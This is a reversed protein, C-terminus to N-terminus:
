SSFESLFDIELWQIRSDPASQFGGWRYGGNIVALPAGVWNSNDITDTFAVQGVGLMHLVAEASLTTFGTGNAIVFTNLTPVVSSLSDLNPSWAQVSSGIGLGLHARLRQGSELVLSSSGDSSGIAVTGSPFPGLSTFADTGNALVVGYPLSSAGTGGCSTDLPNAFHVAGSVRLSGQVDLTSQITNSSSHGIGIAGRQSVIVAATDLLDKSPTPQEGTFITLDAMPTSSYRLCAGNTRDPFYVQSGSFAANPVSIASTLTRVVTTGIQQVKVSMQTGGAVIQQDATILVFTWLAVLGNFMPAWNSGLDISLFVQGGNVAAAIVNGSVVVSVWERSATDGFSESWTIGSDPSVFISGPSQYAVLTSGDVAIATIRKARTNMSPGFSLGMNQSMRPGVLPDFLWLESPTVRLAPTWSGAVLTFTAGRDQSVYVQSTNSVFGAIRTGTVDSTVASWTFSGGGLTRTLRSWKTRNSNLAYLYGTPAASGALILTGNGSIHATSWATSKSTSVQDRVANWEWGGNVTLDDPQGPDTLLIGTKNVFRIDRPTVDLCDVTSVHPQSAISSIAYDYNRAESDSSFAIRGSNPLYLDGSFLTLKDNQNNPDPTGSAGM